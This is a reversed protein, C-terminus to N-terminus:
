KFIDNLMGALHVGGKLLQQNLTAIYKFDYEYGLRPNPQKVDAVIAESLQFSDWLWKSMPEKQWALRQAPTVFNIANVYETYSLQQFDILHSDWVRHLNTNENFWSLRISNGGVIGNRAAHLPQHIDGVFHILLRLYMVKKDQPLLKNKLEKKLFNIKTYADVATDRNLFATFENYNLGSDFNVYHWISLYRYNTDSKVFDAWNSSMAVSENGLIKQIEKKAKLTLYKDAIEGVIRHGLTGWAMSQMPLYILCAIIALLKFKKLM